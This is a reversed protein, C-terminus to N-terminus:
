KQRPVLQNQQRFVMRNGIAFIEIVSFDTRANAALRDGPRHLRRIEPPLIPFANKVNM